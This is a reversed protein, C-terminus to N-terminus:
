KVSDKKNMLERYDKLAESIEKGRYVQEGSKDFVIFYPTANVKMKMIAPDALGLPAWFRKINEISDKRIATRWALSDSNLCVDAIIRVSDPFEKGLNKLSDLIEKKEGEASQWFMMIVPNKSDARLTDAGEKDSRMVLSHLKAPYSYYHFMQDSRALMSLLQSDRAEKRLSAMLDNYTKEDDKRRFYSLMLIASVPNEPNEGVFKEISANISDIGQTTILGQNELRWLTIEDNLTNGTVNWSFPQKDTGKIQIKDGRDAVVVLPLLARRNSIMVLTPRKTIGKLECKGDRVSAVAQITVGGKVDTAYYTVNYNETIEKELQFDLTFENKGCSLLALLCFFFIYRMNSVM